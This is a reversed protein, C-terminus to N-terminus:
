KGTKRRGRRGAPDPAARKKGLSPSGQDDDPPPVPPAPPPGPPATSSGSSQRGLRDLLDQFGRRYSDPAGNITLRESITMLDPEFIRLVATPFTNLLELMFPMETPGPRVILEYFLSGSHRTSRRATRTEPDPEPCVSKLTDVLPRLRSAEDGRVQRLRQDILFAKMIDKLRRALKSVEDRMRDPSSALDDVRGDREVLGRETLEEYANIENDLRRKAKQFFLVARRDAPQMDLLGTYTVDHHVGWQLLSGELDQAITWETPRESQGPDIRRQIDDRYESPLASRDFASIADCVEFKRLEFDTVPSSMPSHLTLHSFLDLPSSM